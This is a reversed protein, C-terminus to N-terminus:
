TAACSACKRRWPYMTGASSAECYSLARERYAHFKEGKRITRRCKSCRRDQTATRNLTEVRPRFNELIDEAAM